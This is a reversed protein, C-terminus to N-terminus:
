AADFDKKDDETIETWAVLFKGELVTPLTKVKKGGNWSNAETCIEFKLFWERVDGGSFLKPISVHTAEM